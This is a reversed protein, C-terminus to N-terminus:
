RSSMVLRSEPTEDLMKTITKHKSVLSALIPTLAGELDLFGKAFAAAAEELALQMWKEDTPTFPPPSATACARLLPGYRRAPAPPLSLQPLTALRALLAASPRLLMRALLLGFFASRKFYMPNHGSTFYDTGGMCLLKPTLM